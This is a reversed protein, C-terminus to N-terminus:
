TWAALRAYRVEANATAGDHGYALHLNGATDYTMQWYDLLDRDGAADGQLDCNTGQFCFDGVHNPTTTVQEVRIQPNATWFDKVRAVYVNWQGNFGPTQFDGSTATGYWGVAIEGPRTAVTTFTTGKHADPSLVLTKAGVLSFGPLGILQVGDNDPKPGAIYLKGDDSAVQTSMQNGLPPLELRTVSTGCPPNPYRYLTAATGFGDAAFVLRGNGDWAPQGGIPIAAGSLGGPATRQPFTLAGDTSYACQQRMGGNNWHMAVIGNGKAALWPRDAIAGAEVVFTSAGLEWTAGGDKSSAVNIAPGDTTSAYITGADDQAFVWGDYIGGVFRHNGPIWPISIRTWTAGDDTSRLVGLHDGILISRGLKDVLVAPEAGESVTTAFAPTPEIGDDALDAVGRFAKGTVGGMSVTLAPATGETPALAPISLAVLTVIVLVIGRAM